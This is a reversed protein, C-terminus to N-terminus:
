ASIWIMSVIIRQEVPAGPQTRTKRIVSSIPKSCETKECETVEGRRRVEVDVHDIHVAELCSSILIEAVPIEEGSFITCFNNFVM